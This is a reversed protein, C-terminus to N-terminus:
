MERERGVWGFSVSIQPEKDKSSWTSSVTARFPRARMTTGDDDMGFRGFSDEAKPEERKETAPDIFLANTEFSAIEASGAAAKLTLHAFGCQTADTGGDPLEVMLPQSTANIMRFDRASSPPNTTNKPKERRAVVHLVKDGKAAYLRIGNFASGIRELTMTQRTILKVGKTNPDVWADISEITAKKDQQSFREQHIATVEMPGYSAKFTAATPKQGKKITPYKYPADIRSTPEMELPWEPDAQDESFHRRTQGFCVTDDAGPHFGFGEGGSYEKAEDQKSFVLVQTIKGERQQNKPPDAVYFGEVKETKAITKPAKETPPKTWSATPLTAYPPPPTVKPVKPAEDALAFTSLGLSALGIGLFAKKM